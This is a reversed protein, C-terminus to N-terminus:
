VKNIKFINIYYMYLNVLFSVIDIYLIELFCIIVYVFIYGLWYFLFVLNLLVEWFLFNDVLLIKVINNEKKM